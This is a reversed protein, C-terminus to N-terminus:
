RKQRLLELALLVLGPLAAGALSLMGYLLSAALGQAATFGFLPWLAAAAAERTGWGGVGVPILMTLLCLPIITVVALLPLSAGVADSALLFTLVYGGTILLSLGAQVALAGRTWFAARLAQGAVPLFRRLRARVAPFLLPLALAALVLGAAALWVLPSASPASVQPLVPISGAPLVFAWALLGGGMLLAFALQGSMRELAVATAAQKWGGDASDKVRYIRAADGAMGGPLLLNLTGGLYYERIAAGLPIAHGLRAATFRWRLASLVTQFQVLLLGALLHGAPAKALAAAISAPNLLAILGALLALGALSALLRIKRM